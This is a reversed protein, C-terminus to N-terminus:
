RRNGQYYMDYFDDMSMFLYRMGEFFGVIGPIATWWFLLYLIGWKTKGQYFKHAGICGGFIALASMILKDKLVSGRLEEPMAKRTGKYEPYMKHRFTPAKLDFEVALYDPTEEDLVHFLINLFGYVANTHLGESNTLLPIGYFARNLISHGDILLLKESM